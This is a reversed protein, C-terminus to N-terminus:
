DLEKEWYMLDVDAEWDKMRNVFLRGVGRVIEMM